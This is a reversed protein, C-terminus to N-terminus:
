PGFGGTLEVVKGEPPVFERRPTPPPELAVRQEWMEDHDATGLGSTADDDFKEVNQTM